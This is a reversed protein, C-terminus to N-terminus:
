DEGDLYSQTDLLPRELARVWETMTGPARGGAASRALESRISQMKAELDDLYHLLMAEPIM